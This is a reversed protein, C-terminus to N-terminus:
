SLHKKRHQGKEREETEELWKDSKELVEDFQTYIFDSAGQHPTNM